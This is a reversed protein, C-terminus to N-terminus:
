GEEKMQERVYEALPAVEELHRRFADNTERVDSHLEAINVDIADFRVDGAILRDEVAALGGGLTEHGNEPTLATKIDHRDTRAERTAKQGQRGILAVVILTVASLVSAVLGGWTVEEIGLM